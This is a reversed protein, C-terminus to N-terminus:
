ASLPRDANARAEAQSKSADALRMATQTSREIEADTLDFRPRGNSQLRNRRGAALIKLNDRDQPMHRPYEQSDDNGARRREAEEARAEAHRDAILTDALSLDIHRRAGDVAAVWNPAPTGDPLIKWNEPLEAMESEASEKTPEM